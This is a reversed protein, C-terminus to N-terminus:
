LGGTLNGTWGLAVSGERRTGAPSTPGLRGSVRRTGRTRDALARNSFLSGIRARESLSFQMLTGSGISPYVCGMSDGALVSTDGADWEITTTKGRM